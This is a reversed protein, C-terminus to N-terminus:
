VVGEFIQLQGVQEGGRDGGRLHPELTRWVESDLRRFADVFPVYPLMGDPLNVCHGVLVTMGADAARAALENVLRTKGVGADGGLVVAGPEGDSARNLVELLEELEVARGGLSSSQRTVDGMSDRPDSLLDVVSNTM